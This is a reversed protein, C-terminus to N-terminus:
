ASIGFAAWPTCSMSALTTATNSLSRSSTSTSRSGWFTEIEPKHRFMEYVSNCYLFPAVPVRDARGGKLTTLLRERGNM